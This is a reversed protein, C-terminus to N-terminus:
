LGVEDVVDLSADLLWEWLPEDRSWVDERDILNSSSVTNFGVQDGSGSWYTSWISEILEPTSAGTSELRRALPIIESNARLTRLPPARLVCRKLRRGRYRSNPRSAAERAEDLSGWAFVASLRSPAHKFWRRRVCEAHYEARYNTTTRMTQSSQFGPYSPNPIFPLWEDEGADYRQRLSEDTAYAAVAVSSINKIREINWVVHPSQSTVFVFFEDPLAVAPDVAM